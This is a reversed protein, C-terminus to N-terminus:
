TVLLVHNCVQMLTVLLETAVVHGTGSPHSSGHDGYLEGVTFGTSLLDLVFWPCTFSLPWPNHGQHFVTDPISSLATSHQSHFSASRLRTTRHAAM